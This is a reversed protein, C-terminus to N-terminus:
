TSSGNSKGAKIGFFYVNVPAVLFVLVLGITRARDLVVGVQETYSWHPQGIMYLLLLNYLLTLSIALRQAATVLAQGRMAPFPKAYWAAIIAGLNAGYISALTKYIDIRDHPLLFPIGDANTRFFLAECLVLALTFSGLWIVTLATRINM